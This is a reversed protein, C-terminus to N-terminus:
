CRSALPLESGLDEYISSFHPVVYGMLFAVVLLGAGCLVAPYISANILGKRM